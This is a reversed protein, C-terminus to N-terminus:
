LEDDKDACFQFLHQSTAGFLSKVLKLSMNNGLAKLTITQREEPIKMKLITNFRNLDEM